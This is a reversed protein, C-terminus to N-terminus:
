VQESSATKQNLRSWTLFYKMTGSGGKVAKVLCFFILQFRVYMPAPFFTKILGDRGIETGVDDM